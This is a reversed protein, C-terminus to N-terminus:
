KRGSQNRPLYFVYSVSLLFRVWRTKRDQIFIKGAASCDAMAVGYATFAGLSDALVDRLSCHRGPTFYQHIEDSIGFVVAILVGLLSASHWFVYDPTRNKRFFGFNPVKEVVKKPELTLFLRILLLTLLFYALSHLVYDPTDGGIRPDPVSSMLFIGGM